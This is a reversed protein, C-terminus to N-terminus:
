QKLIIPLRELGAGSSVEVYYFGNDLNTLDITYDNTSIVNFTAVISGKLDIIKIYDFFENSSTIHLLGANPNPFIQLTGGWQNEALGLLEFTLCSSTDSCSNQTVIVAYEGSESPTFINNTAELVASNDDCNIWQFSADTAQAILNEDTLNVALDVSVITLALTVISDCGAESILTYTDEFNSETYTIGNIWTIPACSLIEDTGFTAECDGDLNLRAIRHRPTGDFSNFMGGVFIKENPSLATCYVDWDFGGGPNFDADVSGDTNLRIIREKPVGNYSQFSGSAIIKGDDQISLAFVVGTLFGTGINFDSDLTGDVNLRAIRRQTLGNFTPFWGGVLIKGDTQLAISEVVGSFGNGTNFTNDLSGDANIRAFQNVPVAGYHSFEGGVLIKDDDQIVITLVNYNFTNTYIFTTDIDGNSELRILRSCNVNRYSTFHGGVLIKGDNQVAIAKVIGNFGQLIVFSSDLTGDANLRAFRNRPQLNTSTFQGGVLIKGDDQLAVSWVSNNLSPAFDSDTSGDANFRKLFSPSVDAFGGGGALMKGDPQVAMSAVWNNNFSTEANFTIDLSGAQAFCFSNFIIYVCTTVLTNGFINLQTM